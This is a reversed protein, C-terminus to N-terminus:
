FLTHLNSFHDPLMFRQEQQISDMDNTLDTDLVVEGVAEPIHNM